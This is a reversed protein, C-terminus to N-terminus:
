KWTAGGDPSIYIRDGAWLWVTAGTQALAIPAPSTVGALCGVVSEGVASTASPLTRISLGSCSPDGFVAITFGSGDPTIAFVGPVPVSSLAPQTPQFSATRDPYAEWYEGGTYTTIASTTCAAGYEALLEVQSDDVVVLDEIERIEPESPTVSQWSAGSDSSTEIISDSGSCSGLTARYAETPSALGMIRSNAGVTASPPASTTPSPSAIPAASASSNPSQTTPGATYLPLSTASPTPPTLAFAILAVDLAVFAAIGIIAWTRRRRTAMTLSRGFPSAPVYYYGEPQLYREAVAIASLIPPNM